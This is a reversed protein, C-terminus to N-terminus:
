TRAPGATVAQQHSLLGAAAQVTDSVAQHREHWLPGVEAVLEAIVEPTLGTIRRSRIIAARARIGVVRVHDVLLGSVRWWGGHAFEDPRTTARPGAAAAMGLQSANM